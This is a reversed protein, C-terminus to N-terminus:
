ACGLNWVDGAQSREFLANMSQGDPTVTLTSRVRATERDTPQAVSAVDPGGTFHFVGDTDVMLQMVETAGSNDFSRALFGADPGPEGIIKIARVVQEGVKVDVHHILYHGSDLIEYADFGAVPVPPNAVIYGDTRWRGAIAWLRDQRRHAGEPITEVM